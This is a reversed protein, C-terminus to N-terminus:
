LASVSPIVSERNPVVSTEKSIKRAIEEVAEKSRYKIVKAPSGVAVAYAPIDKTVVSNAGVVAGKAITVGKGIFVGRGIWVDEGITIPAGTFGQLSIPVNSQSFVHDNDRISVFEGIRTNDGVVVGYLASIYTYDNLGVRNGLHIKGNPGCHLFVGKGLTCCQGLCIERFAYGFRPWGKFQCYGGLKRFWLKPVLFYLSARLTDASLEIAKVAKSLLAYNM